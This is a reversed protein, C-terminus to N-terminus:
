IVNVVSQNIPHYTSKERQTWRPPVGMALFRFLTVWSSEDLRSSGDGAQSFEPFYELRSSNTLFLLVVSRNRKMENTKAKLFIDLSKPWGWPRSVNRM